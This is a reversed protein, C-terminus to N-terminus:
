TGVGSKMRTTQCGTGPAQRGFGATTCARAGMVSKLLDMCKEREFELWFQGKLVLEITYHQDKGLGPKATWYAKTGLGSNISDTQGPLKM